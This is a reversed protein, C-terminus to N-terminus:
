RTNKLYNKVDDHDGILKVLLAAGERVFVARHHLGARCEYLGPRLRRLGLGSHLHPRGFATPLARLAAFVSPRLEPALKEAAALARPELLVRLM